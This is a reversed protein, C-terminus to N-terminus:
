PELMNTGLVKDFAASNNHHLIGFGFLSPPKYAYKMKEDLSLDNVERSIDFLTEAEALLVEGQASGRLDLQIFGAAQCAQFLKSSESEVNSLLKAFSVHPLNVTPVDDPFPPIQDFLKATPM